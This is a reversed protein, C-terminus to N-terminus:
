YVVRHRSSGAAAQNSASPLKCLHQPFEREIVARMEDSVADVLSVQNLFQGLTQLGSVTMPYGDVLYLVADASEVKQVM